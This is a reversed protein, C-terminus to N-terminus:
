SVTIAATGAGTAGPHTASINATGASVGTVVGNPSVTAVSTDDSSWTVGQTFDRTGVEAKLTTVAGVAVAGTAPTVEVPTATKVVTNVKLQGQPLYTITFKYSDEGETDDSAADGRFKYVSVVDGAAAQAMPGGAPAIVRVILYGAAGSKRFAEFAQHYISTTDTPDKERFFPISAAFQAFGRSVANGADVLSRDDVDNSDSAGLEFGDWAIAPSLNLGANIEVPTPSLYNVLGGEPVWWVTVNANSMIKQDM